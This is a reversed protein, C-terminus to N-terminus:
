VKDKNNKELKEDCIKIIIHQELPLPELCRDTASSLLDDILGNIFNVDDTFRRLNVRLFHTDVQLQQYGNKGLTKQRIYELFSKLLVTIIGEIISTKEAKIEGFLKSKRSLLMSELFKQSSPNTPALSIDKGGSGTSVTDLLTGKIGKKLVYFEGVEKDITILHKLVIDVVIRVERPASMKTWDHNEVGVRIYQSLSQGQLRVYQTVVKTTSEGFRRILDPANLVDVDLEILEKLMQQVYSVGSTQMYGGLRGLLLLFSPKMEKFEVKTPMVDCYEMMRLNMHLFIQQVKVYLKYGFTSGYKALLIL